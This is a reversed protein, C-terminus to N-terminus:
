RSVLLGIQHIAVAAIYALGTMYTFVFTPWKWSGTEKKITALTGMCQCCLAFFVMLGVATWSTLLPRGDPWTSQRLAQRLDGSAEEVDGGLSFLVGLSPVVVERAPFASLIATTIRWDFGAPAFVPEIARGMRGLLSNEVQREQVYAELRTAERFAASRAEYEAAYRAEDASSRPFYALAWIAVSMVVIITGATTLFSKVKVGVTQGVERWRPWRYAPLELAFPLSKLRRKQGRNLLLALPIAVALGVLHMGFLTLGAWLPGFRPEIFAGILLIYVPLRASCSMLPAVLMTVLRSRPEPMVRAAMIGPIACAFSSLLPVFARGNLGCWGLLKDMLFAARALYGSGELLAIWAFLIAIQPIFVLVSGVGGILGDVILSRLWEIGVWGAVLDKLANVGADILDMLPAALSYISWFVMAMAAAFIVLGFVRHTLVKDIRDSSLKLRRRATEPVVQHRIEAAWAYREAPTAEATLPAHPLQRDNLAREIALRLRVLDPARHATVAGVEIGLTSEIAEVDVREGNKALLDDMTVVALMPVGLEAIQSHLFLSRELNLADLAIIVLDIEGNTLEERAVEEDASLVNLSYLGPLDLVEILRGSLTFTGTAREVTVGPYNGVKQRLGTLANFLSTKGSNPNGVLAIRAPRPPSTVPKM